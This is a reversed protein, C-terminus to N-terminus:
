TSMLSVQKCTWHAQKEWFEGLDKPTGTRVGHTKFSGISSWHLKWWRRGYGTMVLAHCTSQGHAFSMNRPGYLNLWQGNFPYLSVNHIKHVIPNALRDEDQDAGWWKPWHTPVWRHMSLALM